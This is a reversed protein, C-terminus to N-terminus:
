RLSSNFDALRVGTGGNGDLHLSLGSTIDCTPLQMVCIHMQLTVYKKELQWEVTIKVEYGFNINSQM